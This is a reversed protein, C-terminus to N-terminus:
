NMYSGLEKFLNSFAKEISAKILEKDIIFGEKYISTVFDDHARGNRYDPERKPHKLYKSILSIDENINLVAHYFLTKGNLYMSSGLIKKEGISLDSIGKSNLNKIGTESLEEILKANILRFIDKPKGLSESSIKASFVLMRPSLVVSEGGTPRKYVRIGETIIKETYLSNEASNARGLIIYINDPQWFTVGFNSNSELVLLDPLDYKQVLDTMQDFASKQDIDTQQDLTSQNINSATDYM